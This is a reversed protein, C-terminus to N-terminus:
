SSDLKAWDKRLDGSLSARPWGTKSHCKDILRVVDERQQPNQISLGAIYLCQSSMISSAADTLTMAIRCITSAAAEMLRQQEAYGRIGGLSPKYLLILIQASRFLQMSVGFEPPHIWFPEFPDSPGLKTVTPLPTFEVPLNEEWERLMEFIAGARELRAKIDGEGEVVAEKSCYDVAKAFIWVIRAAKESPSMVTYAKTPKWFSLTKRRERFAAWVDQRLWAWWVASRLGGTEGHILQSRQIWFVGKLHREWGNGSDDLMEYMSVILVTALLEVSTTYADVSMAQQLYRLTDYYYQLGIRRDREFENAAPSISLQRSSLALIANMLGADRMALHPVLVSFCRNPDYLDIWLSVQNVFNAFLAVESGSLETPRSGHWLERVTDQSASLESSCPVAVNRISYRERLAELALGNALEHFRPLATADEDAAAAAAAADDALLGFWGYFAADPPISAPHYSATPTISLSPSIFESPHYTEVTLDLSPVHSPEPEPNVSPHNGNNNEDPPLPPPTAYLCTQRSKVCNGCEPTVEDCRLHRRKCTLCGTTKRLGRGRSKRKRRRAENQAARRRAAEDM